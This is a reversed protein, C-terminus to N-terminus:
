VKREYGEEWEAAYGVEKVCYDEVQEGMGGGGGVEM